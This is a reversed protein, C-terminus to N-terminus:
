SDLVVENIRTVIVEYLTSSKLPIPTSYVM